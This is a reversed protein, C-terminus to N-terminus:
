SVPDVSPAPGVSAREILKPQIVTLIKAAEPWALRYSLSQLALRGMTIKDVAMTTLTPTIQAALEIDDFGIVSLDEPVRRGLAQAAQMANIAFVDNCGVLATVEPHRRLLEATPAAAEDKTMKGFFPDLGHERLAKLYGDRRQGFNPDAEPAPSILAIRRHGHRILHNVAQYGGAQNDSIVADYRHSGAPADVLVIAGAHRNAVEAITSEPFSGVLLVGDLRQALLHDPFELPQNDDDVPLTTYLLNMRQPRAAAEVGALVWSYFANVGPLRALKNRNRSRLILGINLVTQGAEIPAPPRKQYGLLQAATWVRERTDSGIGPKDRLVLSVTTRSAGSHRAIDDITVKRQM